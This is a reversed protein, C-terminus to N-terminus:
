GDLFSCQLPKYSISSIYENDVICDDFLVFKVVFDIYETAIDENFVYLSLETPIGRSYVIKENTKYLYKTIYEVAKGFKLDEETIESFDNRGFKEAFFSNINATQMSKKKTSYSTEETITGVMESKPIYMLAHFHLRNETPSLEFVGMYNWSRRCHLNSLCKRLKKKFISSNMKKNDYTITVFYNWKNLNAKRKFRKIRSYFNHIKAKIHSEIYSDINKITPYSELMKDKLFNRLASHTLNQKVAEFYMNDFYEDQESKSKINIKSKEIKFSRTGVFHKGDHYIKLHEGFPDNKLNIPKLENEIHKKTM